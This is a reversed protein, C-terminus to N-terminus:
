GTKALGENGRWTLQRLHFVGGRGRGLRSASRRPPRARAGEAAGLPIRRALPDAKGVRDGPRDAAARDIRRRPHPPRQLDRRRRGAAAERRPSLRGRRQRHAPSLRPPRRSQRDKRRATPQPRRPLGYTRHAARQRNRRRRGPHPRAGPMRRGHDPSPEAPTRRGTGAQVGGRVAPVARASRRRRHLRARGGSLPKVFFCAGGDYGQVFLRERDAPGPPAELRAEHVPPPVVAPATQDPQPAPAEPRAEAPTRRPLSAGAPSGPDPQAAAVPKVAPPPSPAPRDAVVLTATMQATKGAHNTATIRATVPGAQEPAGKIVGKGDGLDEFALGPPLADAALRLGQGSRDSFAPLEARYPTAVTAPPLEVATQPARPAAAAVLEETTPIHQAPPVAAPPAPTDSPPLTATQPPNETVAAPAPQPPPATESPTAPALPPLAATSAAPKSPEALPPPGAVPAKQTPAVRPEIWQALDDRFVYGVAALSVVAILAGLIAALRGGASERLPAEDEQLSARRAAAARSSEGWEAVAAMSSPRKDPLPELMAHILPRISRDVGSIDPVSRRKEVVDAQSGSM